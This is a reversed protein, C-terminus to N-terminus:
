LACGRGRVDSAIELAWQRALDDRPQRTESALSNLLGVVMRMAALLMAGEDHDAIGLAHFTEASDDGRMLALILGGLAPAAEDVDPSLFLRTTPHQDNM